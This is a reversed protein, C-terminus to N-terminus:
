EQTAVRLGLLILMVGFARELARQWRALAERVRPLRLAWVFAIWFLASTAVMAAILIATQVPSTGPVIVQTFVGLYFLAGKPNLLNNLLGQVFAGLDARPARPASAAPQRRATARLSGVGLFILYAAGAFKLASYAMISHAVVWGVGLACYTIHVFNGALVGASTLLGRRGDGALTNRMVLVMDPGPSLMCLLTVGVVLLLAQLM